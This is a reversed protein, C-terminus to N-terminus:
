KKDSHSEPWHVFTLGPHNRKFYQEAPKAIEPSDVCLEPFLVMILQDILKHMPKGKKNDVMEYGEYLALELKGTSYLRFITSLQLALMRPTLLPEAPKWYVPYQFSLPGYQYAYHHFVGINLPTTLAAQLGRITFRVADYFRVTMGEDSPIIKTSRKQTYFHLLHENLGPTGEYDCLFDFVQGLLGAARESAAVYEKTKMSQRENKNDHRQRPAKQSTRSKEFRLSKFCRDLVVILFHYRTNIDDSHKCAFNWLDLMVEPYDRDLMEATPSDIEFNYLSSVPIYKHFATKKAVVAGKM